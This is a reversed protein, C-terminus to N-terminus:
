KGAPAPNAAPAPNGGTIPKIVQVQNVQNGAPAPNAAAAPAPNAAAPANNRREGLRREYEGTGCGLWLCLLLCSMAFLLRKM